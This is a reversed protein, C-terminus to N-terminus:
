GVTYRHVAEWVAISDKADRVNHTRVIRAGREVALLHAAVTAAEREGVARGTVEGLSSKRSFGVLVPYGAEVFKATAGLLEFNGALDKGFGFGYDLVIRSSEIGAAECAKARALLYTLVETTVDEYRTDRQMTQATGRKHMLCIGARASALLEIAGEDELASVDNIIDAGSDLAARMVATKQTDVSLLAGCGSLRELLPCVREIEVTADVSQAGPRTSEGGIDLIDAGDEVMRMAKAYLAEFDIRGTADSFSDPTANIIGMVRPKSLDLTKGNCSWFQSSLAMFFLQSSPKRKLAIKLM